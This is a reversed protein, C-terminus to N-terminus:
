VGEAELGAAADDGLGGGGHETFGEFALRGVSQGREGGVVHEGEDAEREGGAADGAGEEREFGGAEEGLLEERGLGRRGRGGGVLGWGSGRGVSRGGSRLRGPM